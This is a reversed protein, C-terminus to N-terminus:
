SGWVEGEGLKSNGMNSFENMGWSGEKVEELRLLYVRREKLRRYEKPPPDNWRGEM